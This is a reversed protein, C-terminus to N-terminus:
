INELSLIDERLEQWRDFVQQSFNEERFLKSWWFQAMYDTKGIKKPNSLTEIMWEDTDEGDYYSALGFGLNFDWIPGITLKGGNRNRDKYMYTSLRYGDVNKALENLIIFDICSGVNLYRSYGTDPDAFSDSFM